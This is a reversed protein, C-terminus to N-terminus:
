YNLYYALRQQAKNIRKTYYAKRQPQQQQQAQLSAIQKQLAVVVAHTALM